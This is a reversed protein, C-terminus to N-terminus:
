AAHKTRYAVHSAGVRPKLEIVNLRSDHCLSAEDRHHRGVENAVQLRERDVPHEIQVLALVPVDGVALQIGPKAHPM